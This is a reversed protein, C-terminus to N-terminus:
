SLLEEALRPDVGRGSRGSGSVGGVRAGVARYQSFGSAAKAAAHAGRYHPTVVEIDEVARRGDRDDYEIRADPFEVHGENCPLERERAWRAIADQNREPIGGGDRRGRNNRQLFRQYDSKLEEELVVRRVRAGREALKESERVYAAHVWADHALERPKSVGAYFAQRPEGADSRRRSELVARGRETLTVLTTRTRGVVYPMTKILGHDRLRELDRAPRTPTRPNAERLENAPVVRFAGVTALARVDDGSLKYDHANVRVRERRPGRPMDLNRSFVDRTGESAEGFEM